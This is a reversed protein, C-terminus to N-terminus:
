SKEHSKKGGSQRMKRNREQAEVKLLEQKISAGPNQNNRCNDYKNLGTNKERNKRTVGQNKSQTHKM